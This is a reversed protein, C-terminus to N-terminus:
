RRGPSLGGWHSLAPRAAAFPLGHILSVSGNGASVLTALLPQSQHPHRPRTSMVAVLWLPLDARRSGSAQAQGNARPQPGWPKGQSSPAIHALLFACGWPLGGLGRLGTWTGSWGPARARPWRARVYCWAGVCAHRPQRPRLLGPRTSAPVSPPPM